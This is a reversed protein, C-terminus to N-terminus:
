KLLEFSAFCLPLSNEDAFKSNEGHESAYSHFQQSIVSHFNEKLLQFSSFVCPYLIEKVQNLVKRMNKMATVVSVHLSVEKRLSNFSFMEQQYVYLKNIMLNLMMTMMTNIMNLNALFIQLTILWSFVQSM